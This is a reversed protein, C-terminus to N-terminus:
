FSSDCRAISEKKGSNERSAFYRKSFQVSRKPGLFNTGRRLISDSKPPEVDQLVCGLQEAVSSKGGTKKPKKNSQSDVERQLFPASKM